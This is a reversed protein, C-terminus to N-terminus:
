RPAADVPLNQGSGATINEWWVMRAADKATEDYRIIITDGHDGCIRWCAGQWRTPGVAAPRYQVQTNDASPYFAEQASSNRVIYFREENTEDLTLEYSYLGRTRVEMKMPHQQWASSSLAVFYQNIAIERLTRWIRTSGATAITLSLEQPHRNIFILTITVLTGQPLHLRWFRDAGGDDPGVIPVDTSSTSMIPHICWDPDGNRLVNFEDQDHCGARLTVVFTDGNGEQRMEVLKGGTANGHIYYKHSLVTTDLNVDMNPFGAVSETCSLQLTEGYTFGFRWTFVIKYVMFSSRRPRYATHEPDMPKFGRLRWRQEKGLPDPGVPQRSFDAKPVTPHFVMDKDGNLVFQFEEPDKAVRLVITFVGDEAKQLPTVEEYNDWSGIIGIEDGPRPGPKGFTEYREWFFRRPTLDSETVVQGSLHRVWHDVRANTGTSSFASVGGGASLQQRQTLEMSIAESPFIGAAKPEGAVANLTADINPNLVRLHQGPICYVALSLVMKILGISGAAAEAHGLNSKLSGILGPDERGLLAAKKLASVEIPDGLPSGVGHCEFVAVEWPYFGAAELSKAILKGQAPGFSATNSASQGDQTVAAGAHCSWASRAELESTGRRLWLGTCAETRVYGNCSENFTFCRGTPSLARKACLQIFKRPSEIANVAMALAAQMGYITGSPQTGRAPALELSKPMVEKMAECAKHLSVLSSSDGTDTVSCPGSTNYLYALRSAATGSSHGCYKWQALSRKAIRKSTDGYGREQVAMWEPGADALFIGMNRRDEMSAYESHLTNNGVECLLRQGRSMCEAESQSLGCFRHDFDTENPLLGAHYTYMKGAQSALEPIYSFCDQMDFRHRPIEVAADSGEVLEMLLTVDDNVMPQFSSPCVVAMNQVWVQEGQLHAPFIVTDENVSPQGNDESLMWTQLAVHNGKPHYRYTFRDPDFVLITGKRIKIKISDIDLLEIGDKVEFLEFTGGDNQILYILCLSRRQLFNLHGRMETQRDLASDSHRDQAAQMRTRESENEFPVRVLANMRGSVPTQQRSQAGVLPSLLYGLHTLDNDCKQLVDEPGLDFESTESLWTFKTVNDRGLYSEAFMKNPLPQWLPLDKADVFALEKLSDEMFTQIYCYGMAHVDQICGEAVREVGDDVPPWYQHFGGQEYVAPYHFEVLDIEDKDELSFRLGNPLTIKKTNGFTRRRDQPDEVLEAEVYGWPPDLLQPGLEPRNEPTLKGRFGEVKALKQHFSEPDRRPGQWLVGVHLGHRAANRLVAADAEDEARRAAGGRGFIFNGPPQHLGFRPRQQEPPLPFDADEEDM